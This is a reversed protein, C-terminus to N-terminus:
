LCFPLAKAFDGMSEYLLALSNLSEATTPHQEGFAKRRIKLCQQYLPLAKDYDGMSWHLKAVSVLSDATFPDQQGHIQTRIELANQCLALAERFKNQRYLPLSDRFLQTATKLQQRQEPSLKERKQLDVVALRADTTHWDDKGHVAITLVLMEQRLQIAGEYDGKASAHDALWKLVRGFRTRLQRLAKADDPTDREARRLIKREVEAVHRTAQAATDQDNEKTAKQFAAFFEARQKNLEKLSPEAPQALTVSPTALSLLVFLSLSVLLFRSITRTRRIM